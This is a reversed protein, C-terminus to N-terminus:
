GGLVIGRRAGRSSSSPPSSSSSPPPPPPRATEESVVRYLQTADDHYSDYSTEYRVFSLALVTAVLGASLGLVHVTSHVWDLRLRRLALRIEIM